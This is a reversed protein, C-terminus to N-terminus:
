DCRGEDPHRRAIGANVWSRRLPPNLVWDVVIEDLV